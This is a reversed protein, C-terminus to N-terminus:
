AKLAHEYLYDYYPRCEHLLANLFVPFPETKPRYPQFETSSHLNQYWHPAWPGDEPRGGAPWSLMGSDPRLDLRQCVQNLVKRPNLLLEKSDIVLPQNGQSKLELFLQYQREYATDLLNPHPLQKILTPLMEKPDRILFINELGSLFSHDEIGELHHAMNKVFLVPASYKQEVFSYLCSKVDLDLEDLLETRGPHETGTRVLYPGYLPEDLVQTDARQAFSYMLATSINRPGSWLCIRKETM